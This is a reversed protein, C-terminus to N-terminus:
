PKCCSLKGMVKNNGSPPVTLVPAKYNDPLGIYDKSSITIPKETTNELVYESSGHKSSSSSSSGHRFLGKECNSFIKENLSIPQDLKMSPSSLYEILVQYKGSGNPDSMGVIHIGPVKTVDPLVVVNVPNVNITESGMSITYPGLQLEGEKNPKVHISFEMDSDKYFCGKMCIDSNGSQDKIFGGDKNMIKVDISLLGGKRILFEDPMASVVYKNTEAVAEALLLTAIVLFLINISLKCINMYSEKLWLAVSM